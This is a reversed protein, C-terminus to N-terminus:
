NKEPAAALLADIEDHSTNVHHLPPDIDWAALEEAFADRWRTLADVSVLRWGESVVPQIEARQQENM